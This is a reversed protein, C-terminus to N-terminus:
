LQFFDDCAKLVQQQIREPEQNADVVRYHDGQRARLLYKQRIQELRAGYTSELRDHERNLRRLAVEAPLDFVFVLDPRLAGVCLEAFYDIRADDHELGQYCYSSDLFRDSLVWSGQQLCPAILQTCHQRRAAFILLLETIPDVAESRPQLLLERLQEGLESGGPERTVRVRQGQAQLHRQLAQLCSSKGSGDIGEFCIFRAPPSSNTSM